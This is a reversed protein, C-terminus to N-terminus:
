INAESRIMVSCVGGDFLISYGDEMLQGVSLLNHTLNPVYQVDHLLKVNDQSTKIGITGKGEVKVMKDDGFPVESKQNEDLEKFLSRIGTMHDSCGSDM